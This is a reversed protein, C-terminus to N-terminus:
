RSWVSGFNYHIGKEDNSPLFRTENTINAGKLIDHPILLYYSAGMKVPKILMLEPM